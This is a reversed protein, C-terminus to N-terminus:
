VEIPLDLFLNPFYYPLSKAPFAMRLKGKPSPTSLYGSGIAFKIIAAATTMGKGTLEMVRERPFEGELAIASVVRALDERHRNAVDPAVGRFYHEIRQRLGPLQLLDGMFRIQDLMTGLFFRCFEKLGKETLNGRGDYDNQRSQDAAQLLAFYRDRARALGRSLTWLGEGSLGHHTLLAQSHLRAVRGNGDGFPHIWTLRHHAAAIAILQHTAPIERSGYFTQFRRLFNPLDVSEPPTHRGVEVMFSRYEGPKIRYVKGSQTRSVHMAQPLRNYFDKHIWCLFEPEYVDAGEDCVRQIMARETHIHAEALLQNEEQERGRPVEPRLASEMEQPLTKHGEILNSYYCNMTRILDAVAQRVLPSPVCGMLQGTELVIAQSLEALDREGVSPLLPETAMIPSCVKM